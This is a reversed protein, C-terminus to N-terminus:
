ILAIVFGLCLLFGAIRVRQLLDPPDAGNRADSRPRARRELGGIIVLYFRKGPWPITTRIDFKHREWRLQECASRLAQIQDTTFSAQDRYSMRSIIATFLGSGDLPANEQEIMPAPLGSRVHGLDISRGAEVLQRNIQGHRHKITAAIRGAADDLADYMNSSREKRKGLRDADSTSFAM